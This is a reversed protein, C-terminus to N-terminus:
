RVSRDRGPVELYAEEPALTARVQVLNEMVDARDGSDLLALVSDRASPVRELSSVTDREMADLDIRGRPQDLAWLAEALDADLEAIVLVPPPLDRLLRRRDLTLYLARLDLRAEECRARLSAKSWSRRRTSKLPRFARNLGMRRLM